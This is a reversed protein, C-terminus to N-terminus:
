STRISHSTTNPLFPKINKSGALFPNYITKNIYLKVMFVILRQFYHLKQRYVNHFCGTNDTIVRHLSYTNNEIKIVKCQGIHYSLFMLLPSTKHNSCMQQNTPYQRQSIERLSNELKNGQSKPYPM